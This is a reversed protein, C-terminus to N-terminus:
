VELAFRWQYGYATKSKGHCCNSVNAHNYGNREAEALSEFTMLVNGNKDLQEVARMIKKAIRQIRTGYSLNYSGTCWELNDSRNNRKDEDKHNVETLGNPNNLFARAVLRHIYAMKHVGSVSLDVQLYGRTNPKAKLFKHTRNSYVRGYNSVEYVGEYGEIPKFIEGEM